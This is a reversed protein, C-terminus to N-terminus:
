PCVCTRSRQRPAMVVEDTIPVSPAHIGVGAFGADAARHKSYTTNYQLVQGGAVGRRSSRAASYGGSPGRARGRGRSPRRLGRLIFLFSVHSIQATVAKTV